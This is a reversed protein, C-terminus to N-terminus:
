SVMHWAVSSRPSEFAPAWPPRCGQIPGERWSYAGMWAPYLDNTPGVHEPGVLADMQALLLALPRSHGFHWFGLSLPSAGLELTGYWFERYWSVSKEM